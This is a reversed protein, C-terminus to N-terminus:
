GIRVLPSVPVPRGHVRDFSVWEGSTMRYATCSTEAIVGLDTVTGAPLTGRTTTTFDMDSEKGGVTDATTTTTMDPM